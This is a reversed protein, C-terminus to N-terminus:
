IRTVTALADAPMGDQARVILGRLAQNRQRWLPAVEDGPAGRDYAAQLAADIARLRASPLPRADPALRLWEDELMRSEREGAAVADIAVPAPPTRPVLLVAAFVAAAVAAFGAGGIRRRRQRSAHTAVIRQWLAPDPEFRPLRSLDVGQRMDNGETM